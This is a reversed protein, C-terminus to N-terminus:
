HSKAVVSAFVTMYNNRELIFTSVSEIIFRESVFHKRCDDLADKITDNITDLTPLSSDEAEKFNRSMTTVYRDM